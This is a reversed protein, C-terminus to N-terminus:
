LQSRSSAPCWVESPEPKSAQCFQGNSIPLTASAPVHRNLSRTSPRDIGAVRQSSPSAGARGLDGVSSTAAWHVWLMSMGKSNAMKQLFILLESFYTQFFVNKMYANMLMHFPLHAKGNLVTLLIRNEIQDRVEYCRVLLISTDKTAFFAVRPPALRVRQFEYM